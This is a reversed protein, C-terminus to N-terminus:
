YRTESLVDPAAKVGQTRRTASPRRPRLFYGLRHVQRLSFLRSPAGDGNDVRRVPETNRDQMGMMHSDNDVGDLIFNNQLAWQRNANFGAERDVHGFAPLVGPALM